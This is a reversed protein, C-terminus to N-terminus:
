QACACVCVCIELLLRVEVLFGLKPSSSNVLTESSKWEKELITKMDQSLHIWTLFFFALLGQKSGEISEITIDPPVSLLAHM